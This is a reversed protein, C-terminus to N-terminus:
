GESVAFSLIGGLLGVTRAATGKGGKTIARGRVGTRVDGATKGAAVSRMFRNIDPPALDRVRHNGLLPLIHRAIRGRDVSRAAV